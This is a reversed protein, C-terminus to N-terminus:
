LMVLLVQSQVHWTTEGIVLGYENTNGVVNYTVNAESIDGLFAGTDWNYIKRRMGTENTKSAPYHYLLGM